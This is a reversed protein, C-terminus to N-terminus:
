PKRTPQYGTIKVEQSPSLQRCSQALSDSKNLIIKLNQQHAWIHVDRGAKSLDIAVENPFSFQSCYVCCCHCIVNCIRWSFRKKLQLVTVLANSHFCRKGPIKTDVRIWRSTSIYCSDSQCCGKSVLDKRFSFFVVVLLMSNIAGWVTMLLLVIM